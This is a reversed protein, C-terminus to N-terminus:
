ARWKMQDMEKKHQILSDGTISSSKISSNEKLLAPLPVTSTQTKLWSGLTHKFPFLPNLPPVRASAGSACPQQCITSYLWLSWTRPWHEKIFM